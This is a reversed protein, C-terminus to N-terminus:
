PTTTYPVVPTPTPQLSSLVGTYQAVLLSLAVVVVVGVAFVWISFLAQQAFVGAATLTRMGPTTAKVIFSYRRESGVLRKSSQVKLPLHLTQGPEVLVQNTDLVCVMNAEDEDASLTFRTPANGTNTLAIQYVARERGVIRKPDLAISGDAFPQVSWEMVVHDILIGSSQVNLRITVPYVRATSTTEIPVMVMLTAMAQEGLGIALPAPLQVWEAPVGELAMVFREGVAAQHHNIVLVSVVARQGPTISLGAGTVVRLSSPVEQPDLMRTAAPAEVVRPPPASLADPPPAQLARTPASAAVPEVAPPAEMVTAHGVAAALPQGVQLLLRYPGLQVLQGPKWATAVQAVLRVGDLLTGSTSGLDTVQVDHGDWGIQLHSRSIMPADLLLGSTPLRGVSLLPSSLPINRLPQGAEDQVVISAAPQSAAVMQTAYPNAAAHPEPNPQERKTM